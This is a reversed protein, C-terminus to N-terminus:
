WRIVQHTYILIMRDPDVAYVMEPPSNGCGVLVRLMKKFEPYISEGGHLGGIYYGDYNGNYFKSTTDSINPQEKGYFQYPEKRINLSEPVTLYGRLSGDANYIAANSPPPNYYFGEGTRSKAIFIVLVGSQDPLIEPIDNVKLFTINEDSLYLNCGLHKMPIVFDKTQDRNAAKCPDYFDEGISNSGNVDQWVSSVKIVKATSTTNM